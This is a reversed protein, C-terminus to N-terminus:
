VILSTGGGGGEAIERWDERTPVPMFEEVLCDWIACCVEEVIKGVRYSYALSTFSDGSALYRFVCLFCLVFSYYFLVESFM